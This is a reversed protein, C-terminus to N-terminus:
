KKLYRNTSGQCRRCSQCPMSRGRPLQAGRTVFTVELIESPMKEFRRIARVFVSFGVCKDVPCIHISCNEMFNERFFQVGSDIFAIQILVPPATDHQLRERWVFSIISCPTYPKTPVKILCRLYIARVM